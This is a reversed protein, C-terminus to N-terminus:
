RKLVLGFGTCDTGDDGGVIGVVLTGDGGLPTEPGGAQGGIWESAYAGKAALREGSLRAFTVSFGEVVAGARATVAGVAYGSRAKVRLLRSTNTGHQLGLTEGGSPTRFIPRIANIFDRQGVRGLGVEFGILVGGEPAVDRFREGAAAGVIKTQAGVTEGAPDNPGPQPGAVPEKSSESAAANGPVKQEGPTANALAGLRRQVRARSPGTLDPMAQQYWRVARARLSEQLAAERDEALQWWHDAVDLRQRSATPAALDMEAVTKLGTDNGRALMPLGRDWERKTFCYFKGVALNAAAHGPDRGLADRMSRIGDFAEAMRAIQEGRRALLDAGADDRCKQAARLAVTQRQAATPFDDAAIAEEM